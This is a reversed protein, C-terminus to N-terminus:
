REYDPNRVTKIKWRKKPIWVRRVPSAKYNHKFDRLYGIANWKQEDTSWKVRDIGVTNRGKSSTIKRVSIARAAFSNYLENELRKIVERKKNDKIAQYLKAQKAQVEQYARQWDIQKWNNTLRM